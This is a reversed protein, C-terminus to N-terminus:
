PAAMEYTMTFDYNQHWKDGMGMGGPLTGWAWANNLWNDPLWGLGARTFSEMSTDNKGQVRVTVQDNEIRTVTARYSFSGILTLAENPYPRTGGTLAAKLDLNMRVFKEEMGAKSFHDWYLDIPEGVRLEGAGYMENLRTRLQTQMAVSSKLSRVLRDDDNFNTSGTANGNSDQCFLWCAAMKLPSTADGWSGGGGHSSQFTAGPPVAFGSQAGPLVGPKASTKAAAPGGASGTGSSPAAAKNSAAAANNSAECVGKPMWAPCSFLGTADTFSVPNNEAYRYPDLTKPDEPNMLPDPSVFRAVAPDYYRANLYVLGTSAEDSVQNLWGRSIALGDNVASTGAGRTTGYPAYANRSVSNETIADLTGDPAIAHTVMVQASGQVDGFLFSLTGPSSAATHASRV